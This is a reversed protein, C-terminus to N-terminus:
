TRSSRALSLLLDRFPLPTEWCERSSLRGDQREVDLHAVVRHPGAYLRADAHVDGGFISLTSPAETWIEVGELHAYPGDSAVYLAAIM